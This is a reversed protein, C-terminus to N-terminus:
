RWNITNLKNLPRSVRAFMDVSDNIWVIKEQPSADLPDFPSSNFQKVYRLWLSEWSGSGDSNDSDYDEFESVFCLQTLV